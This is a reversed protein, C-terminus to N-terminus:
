GTHAYVWMCYCKSMSFYFYVSASAGISRGGSTFTTMELRQFLGRHQSPNPAPPSPSLLPHSPQIADGVRHVHTQTFELLQHHVPLGPTSFDMPNCLTLCSQAVSYWVTVVRSHATGATLAGCSYWVTVVRSHATGTTLAGCSCWVTVVTSHAAGATSAGRCAPCCQDEKWVWHLCLCLAGALWRWPGWTALSVALPLPFTRAWSPGQPARPGQQTRFLPRPRAPSALAPICSLTCLASLLCPCKRLLAPRRPACFARGPACRRGPPPPKFPTPPSGQGWTSGPVPSTPQLIDKGKVPVAQFERSCVWEKVCLTERRLHLDGQSAFYVLGRTDCVTPFSHTTESCTASSSLIM